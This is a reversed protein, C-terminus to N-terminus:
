KGNLAKVKNRLKRVIEKESKLRIMKINEREIFTRHDGDSNRRVKRIQNGLYNLSRDLGMEIDDLEETDFM